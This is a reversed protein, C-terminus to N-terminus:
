SYHLHKVLTMDLAMLPAERISAMQKWRQPNHMVRWGSLAANPRLPMSLRRLAKM